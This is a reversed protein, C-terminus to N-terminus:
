PKPSAVRIRLFPRCSARTVRVSVKCAAHGGRADSFVIEMMPLDSLGVMKKEFHVDYKTKM